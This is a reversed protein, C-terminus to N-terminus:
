EEQEEDSDATADSEDSQEEENGGDSSAESADEGTGDSGANSADDSTAESEGEAMDRLTGGESQLCVKGTNTGCKLKGEGLAHGTSANLMLVLLVFLLKFTQFVTSM